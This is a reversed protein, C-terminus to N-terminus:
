KGNGAQQIWEDLKKNLLIAAKDPIQQMAKNETIKPILYMAAITRSSPMFIAILGCFIVVPLIFRKFVKLLFVSMNKDYEDPDSLLIANCLFFIVGGILLGIASFFICVYILNDVIGILYILWVM